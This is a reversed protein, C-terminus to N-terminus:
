ALLDGYKERSMALSGGIARVKADTASHGRRTRSGAALGLLRALRLREASYAALAGFRPNRKGGLVAGEREIADLEAKHKVSVRCYLALPEACGADCAKIAESTTALARFMALAEGDLDVPPALTADDNSAALAAARTAPHTLGLERPIAM